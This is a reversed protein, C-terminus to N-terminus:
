SLSKIVLQGLFVLTFYIFLSLMSYSNSFYMQCGKYWWLFFAVFYWWFVWCCSCLHVEIVFVSVIIPIILVEFVVLIFVAITAKRYWWISIKLWSPAVNLSLKKQCKCPIHCVFWTFLCCVKYNCYCFSGTSFFSSNV